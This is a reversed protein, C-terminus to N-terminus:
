EYEHQINIDGYKNKLQELLEDTKKYMENRKKNCDKCVAMFGDKTAKNKNFSQVPMTNKCMNCNKETIVPKPVEPKVTKPCSECWKDNKVENYSISFIHGKDCRVNLKSKGNEYDKAESIMDGKNQQVLFKFITYHKNVASM